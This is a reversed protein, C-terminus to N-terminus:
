DFNFFLNIKSFNSLPNVNTKRVDKWTLELRLAHMIALPSQTLAMSKGPMSWSCPSNSTDTAFFMRTPLWDMRIIKWCLDLAIWLKFIGQFKGVRLGCLEIFWSLVWTFVNTWYEKVFNVEYFPINIKRCIEAADECDKNVQCHGTEDAIDWNRMFVGVVDFGVTLWDILWGFSWCILWGFSWDILWGFSWDILRLILWDILRLILWDILCLILWDILRGFAREMLSAAHM